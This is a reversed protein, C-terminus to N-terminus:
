SIEVLQLIEVEPLLNNRTSHQTYGSAGGFFLWFLHSDSLYVDLRWSGCCMWCLLVCNLVIATCYESSRQLHIKEMWRGMKKVQQIEKPNMPNCHIPSSVLRDCPWVVVCKFVSMCVQSFNQIVLSAHGQVTPPLWLKQLFCSFMWVGCRFLGFPIQLLTKWRHSSLGCLMLYNMKHPQWWISREGDDFILECTPNSRSACITPGSLKVTFRIQQNMCLCKM